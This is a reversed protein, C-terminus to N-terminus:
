QQRLQNITWHRRQRSTCLGDGFPLQVVADIDAGSIFQCFQHLREVAHRFLEFGASVLDLGGTAIHAVRVLRQFSSAPVDFRDQLTNRGSHNRNVRRATHCQRIGSEGSHEVQLPALVYARRRQHVERQPLHHRGVHERVQLRQEPTGITHADRRGVYLKRQGSSLQIDGYGHRRQTVGGLSQPVHQYEFVQRVQQSRLFLRGPALHRPTHRVLDFVRQGRDRKGGLANMAM